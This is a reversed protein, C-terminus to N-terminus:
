HTSSADRFVAPVAFSPAFFQKRVVKEGDAFHQRVKRLVPWMAVLMAGLVAGGLWFDFWTAVWLMVPLALYVMGAMVAYSEKLGPKKLSASSLTTIGVGMNDIKITVFAVWNYWNVM